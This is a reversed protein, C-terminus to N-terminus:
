RVNEREIFNYDAANEPTGDGCIVAFCAFLV